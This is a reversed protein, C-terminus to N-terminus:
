QVGGSQEQAEFGFNEPFGIPSIAGSSQQDSVPTTSSNEFGAEAQGPDSEAFWSQKRSQIQGEDNEAEATQSQNSAEGQNEIPSEQIEKSKIPSHIEKTEEKKQADLGGNMPFNLVLSSSRAIPSLPKQTGRRDEQVQLPKNRPARLQLCPEQSICLLRQSDRFLDAQALFEV